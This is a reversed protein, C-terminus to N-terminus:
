GCCFFMFKLVFDRLDVSQFEAVDILKPCRKRAVPKFIPFSTSYIYVTDVSACICTCLEM